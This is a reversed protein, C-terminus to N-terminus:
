CSAKQLDVYGTSIVKGSLWLRTKLRLEYPFDLVEISYKAYQVALLHELMRRVAPAMGTIATGGVSVFHFPHRRGDNLLAITVVVRVTKGKLKGSKYKEAGRITYTGFWDAGCHKATETGTLSGTSITQKIEWGPRSTAALATAALAALALATILPWSRRLHRMTIVVKANTRSVSEGYVAAGARTERRAAV